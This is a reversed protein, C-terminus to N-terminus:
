AREQLLYPRSKGHEFYDHSAQRSFPVSNKHAMQDFAVGRSGARRKSVASNSPSILASRL